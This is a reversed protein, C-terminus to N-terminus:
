ISELKITSDVINFSKYGQSLSADSYTVEYTVGSIPHVFNFITGVHADFHAELIAFEARTLTDYKLNFLKRARSSKKRVALYNGEFTNKIINYSSTEDSGIRFEPALPNNSPLPFDAM